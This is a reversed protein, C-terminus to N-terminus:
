TGLFALRRMNYVVVLMGMAFNALAQGITRICKGGWQRIAAIVHELRSRIRVIRSNRREQCASLTEGLKAKRQIQPRCGQEGLREEREGGVYGKDAYIEAGTSWEDMAAELHQSDHVCATDAVCTRVFKCKRDVSVRFKYSHYSKGHKKTLSADVDKQRLKTPKWDAPM